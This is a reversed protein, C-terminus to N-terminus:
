GGGVCKVRLTCTRDNTHTRVSKKRIKNNYNRRVHMCMNLKEPVEFM